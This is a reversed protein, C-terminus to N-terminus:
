EPPSYLQFTHLLLVCHALTSLTDRPENFFLVALREHRATRWTSRTVGCQGAHFYRVVVCGSTLNNSNLWTQPEGEREWDTRVKPKLRLKVWRPSCLTVLCTTNSHDNMVLTKGATVKQCPNHQHKATIMKLASSQEHRMNYCSPTQVQYDATIFILHPVSVWNKPGISINAFYSIRIDIYLTRVPAKPTKLASSPLIILIM